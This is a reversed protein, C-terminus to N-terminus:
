CHQEIKEEVWRLASKGAFNNVFFGQFNVITLVHILNWDKRILGFLGHEKM